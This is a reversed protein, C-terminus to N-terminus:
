FSFDRVIGNGGPDENQKKSSFHFNFEVCRAQNLKDTLYDPQHSCSRQASPCISRGGRARCSRTPLASVAADRTPQTKEAGEAALLLPSAVTPSEKEGRSKEPCKSM